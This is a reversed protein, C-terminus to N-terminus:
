LMWYTSYIMADRIAYSASGPPDQEVGGKAIPIAMAAGLGLGPRDLTTSFGLFPLVGSLKIIDQGGNFPDDRQFDVGGLMPAAEIYFGAGEGFALGAPNWWLATSDTATPTGFLGGVELNDLSAALTTSIVLLIPFM